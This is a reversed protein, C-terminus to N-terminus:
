PASTPADRGHEHGGPEDVAGLGSAATERDVRAPRAKPALLATAGEAMTRARSLM